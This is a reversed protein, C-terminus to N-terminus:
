QTWDVVLEHMRFSQLQPCILKARRSFDGDTLAGINKLGCLLYLSDAVKPSVVVRVPPEMEAFSLINM